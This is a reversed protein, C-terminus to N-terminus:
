WRLISVINSYDDSWLTSPRGRELRVWRSDAALDGLDADGRALIAWESPMKGAASERATIVDENDYRGTMGLDSAVSGLVPELDLYRNSTHFILVGGPALKRTYMRIADRTILHIPIADSSFADFLLLDFEGDSANQLSLRADGLVVDPNAGCDSLYRFLAPDRAIREVVPNIDFFTWRQGPTAYAALTGAGLGVIGIRRRAHAGASAAFIQGVPGTRAYYSLPDCVRAPNLSQLGHTTTGHALLRYGGRDMVRHVGYFSRAVFRETEGGQPVLAAAGIIAAAAAAFRVPRRWAGLCLAAPLAFVHATGALSVPPLDLGSISERLLLVLGGASVPVVIDLVRRWGVSRTDYTRSRVLLCAAVIGLPYELTTSFLLPAALVNFLGGIAGGASMSLYFATLHEAPPRDNALEGHCYLSVVLLGFLHLPISRLSHWDLAVGVIPALVLLPFAIALRDQTLFRRRGFVVVFSLLYLGLPVTWLLPVSAVDVTITTTVSLLLSSPVAALVVWRVLRAAKLPHAVGRPDSALGAPTLRM